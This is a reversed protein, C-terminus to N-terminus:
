LMDREEIVKAKSFEQFDKDFTFVKKIKFHEIIAFSYCDVWSIDKNPIKQFLAFAKQILKEDELVITTGSAVIDKIFDVAAKRNHRQSCVTLVEGLIARSTVLTNEKRFIKKSIAVAKNRNADQPLVLALYASADIFIPQSQEM